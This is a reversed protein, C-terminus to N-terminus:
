ERVDVGFVSDEAQSLILSQLETEGSERFGEDELYQDVEHLSMDVLASKYKHKASAELQRARERTVNLLEGVRELTIGGYDAVDLSCSPFTSGPSESEFVAIEEPSLELIVEVPMSAMDWVNFEPFNLKMGGSRQNVDVFLHHKCSTFPCPRACNVGDPKGDGGFEDPDGIQIGRSGLTVHLNHYRQTSTLCDQRTRPREYLAIEEEIEDTHQGAQEPKPWRGGKQGKSVERTLPNLSEVAVGLFTALKELRKPSARPYRGIELFTIIYPKVGVHDAFAKQSM